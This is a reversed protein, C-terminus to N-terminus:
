HAPRAADGAESAEEVVHETVLLHPDGPADVDRAVPALTVRRGSRTVTVDSARGVIRELTLGTTRGCPCPTVSREALDGVDFRLFRQVPHGFPTVLLRGLKNTIGKAPGKYFAIQM